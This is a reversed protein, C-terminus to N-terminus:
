KAAGERDDRIREEYLEVLCRSAEDSRWYSEALEDHDLRMETYCAAEYAEADARKAKARKEWEAPAVRRWSDPAAQAAVIREADTPELVAAMPGGPMM